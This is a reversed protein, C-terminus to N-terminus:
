DELIMADAKVHKGLERKLYRNEALLAGLDHRLEKIMEIMEQKGRVPRGDVWIDADDDDDTWDALKYIEANLRAVLDDYVQDNKAVDEPYERIIQPGTSEPSLSPATATDKTWDPQEQPTVEQFFEMLKKCIDKAGNYADQLESIGSAVYRSGDGLTDVVFQANVIADHKSQSNDGTAAFFQGVALKLDEFYKLALKESENMMPELTDLNKGLNALLGDTEEKTMSVQAYKKQLKVATKLFCKYGANKEM